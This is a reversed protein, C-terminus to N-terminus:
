RSFIPLGWKIKNDGFVQKINNCIGLNFGYEGEGTQFM